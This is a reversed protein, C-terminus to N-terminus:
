KEPCTVASSAGDCGPRCGQPCLGTGLKSGTAPCGKPWGLVCEGNTLDILLLSAEDDDVLKSMEIGAYAALAAKPAGAAAISGLSKALEATALIAEDLQNDSKGNLDTLMWGDKLTFSGEFSGTGLTVKLGYRNHLDPLYVIRLAYPSRPPAAADSGAARETALTRQGGGAQGQGPQKPDTGKKQKDAEAEAQAETMNKTVLLYPKPLYYPIVENETDISGDTKLKYGVIRPACAISCAALLGALLLLTIGHSETRM